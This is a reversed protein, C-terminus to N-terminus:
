IIHFARRLWRLTAMVWPWLVGSVLAPLLSLWLAPPREATALLLLHHVLQGLGLLIMVLLAQQVPGYLRVRQFLLLCFYSVAVLSIANQGVPGGQIGDLLLGVTWAYFIGVRHPLAIVWYILVLGVWLPRAWALWYPYPIVSLLLAVALTLWVVWIGRTAPALM